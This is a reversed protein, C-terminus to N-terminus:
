QAKRLPIWTRTATNSSFHSSNVIKSWFSAKKDQQLTNTQIDAEIQQDSINYSNNEFDYDRATKEYNYSSSDSSSAAFGVQTGLLLLTFLLVTTNKNM